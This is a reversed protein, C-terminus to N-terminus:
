WYNKKCIKICLNAPTRDSQRIIVQHCEKVSQVRIVQHRVLFNALHDRRQLSHARRRRGILLLFLQLQDSLFECLAADCQGVHVLVFLHQQREFRHVPQRLLQIHQTRHGAEALPELLRAHRQLLQLERAVVHPVAELLRVRELAGDAQHEQQAVVEVALPLAGAHVAEADGGELCQGLRLDDLRVVLRTCDHAEDCLEDLLLLLQAREGFQGLLEVENM